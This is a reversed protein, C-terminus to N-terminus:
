DSTLDFDITNSGAEVTATLETQTNYREPISIPEGAEEDVEAGVISVTYQGVPVGTKDGPYHLEYTGDAKTYGLATTGQGPDRPDFTVELNATPNGDLTVTGTVEGMEPGGGCGIVVALFTVAFSFAFIRASQMMGVRAFTSFAMWVMVLSFLLGLGVRFGVGSPEDSRM